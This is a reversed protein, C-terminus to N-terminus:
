VTDTVAVSELAAVADAEAVMAMLEPEARTALMVHGAVPVTPVATLQLADAVPSM